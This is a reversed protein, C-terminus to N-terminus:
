AADAKASLLLRYTNPIRVAVEADFARGSEDARRFAVAAGLSEDPRQLLVQKPYTVEFRDFFQTLRQKREALGVVRGPQDFPVSIERRRLETVLM